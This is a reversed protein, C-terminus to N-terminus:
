FVSIKQEDGSDVRYHICEGRPLARLREAADPLVPSLWDAARADIIRFAFIETLQARIRNNLLNPAHSGAIFDLGARRGIELVDVLPKPLQGASTGCLRQLEDVVLIKRGATKQSREFSWSCFYDFATENDMGSTAPDFLVVRFTDAWADLDAVEAPLIGLRYALEGEQDYIFVNRAEATAIKRIILTTKGTGSSGCVLSKTPRHAIQPLAKM